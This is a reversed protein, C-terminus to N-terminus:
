TSCFEHLNPNHAHLGRTKNHHFFSKQYIEIVELALKKAPPEDVARPRTGSTGPQSDTSEKSCLRKFAALTYARGKLGNEKLEFLQGVFTQFNVIAQLNVDICTHNKQDFFDNLSDM